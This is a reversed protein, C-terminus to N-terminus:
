MPTFLASPVRLAGVTAAENGLFSVMLSIMAYPPSMPSAVEAPNLNAKILGSDEPTVSPGAISVPPSANEKSASPLNM